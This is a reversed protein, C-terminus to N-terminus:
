TYFEEERIVNNFLKKVLRLWLLAGVRKSEDCIECFELEKLLSVFKNYGFELNHYRNFGSSM